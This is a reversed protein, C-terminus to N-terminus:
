RAGAAEVFRAKGVVEITQRKILWQGGVRTLEWAYDVSFIQRPWVVLMEARALASGGDHVEIFLSTTIDTSRFIDSPM